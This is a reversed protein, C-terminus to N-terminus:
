CIRSARAPRPPPSAPFIAVHLSSFEQSAARPRNQAMSSPSRQLESGEFGLFAAFAVRRMPEFRSYNRLIREGRPVLPSLIGGFIIERKSGRLIPPVLEVLGVSGM